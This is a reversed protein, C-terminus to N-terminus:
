DTSLKKIECYLTEIQKKLRPLDDIVTQWLVDIDVGFYEHILINRMGKMQIWPIEPYKSQISEPIHSAAEGIIELNRIVADITKRDQSWSSFDLDKTYEAM